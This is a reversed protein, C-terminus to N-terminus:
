ALSENKRKIYSRRCNSWKAALVKSMRGRRLTIKLKTIMWLLYEMRLVSLSKSLRILMPIDLTYTVRRSRENAKKVTLWLNDNLNLSVHAM